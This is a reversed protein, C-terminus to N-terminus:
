RSGHCEFSPSDNVFFTLASHHAPRQESVLDKLIKSGHYSMVTAHGEGAYLKLTATPILDNLHEAMIVPTSKDLLGHHITVPVIIESLDFGWPRSYLRAELAPGAPGQRNGEVFGALLIEQESLDMMLKQDPESLNKSVIKMFKDPNNKVMKTTTKVNWRLFWLPAKKSLSLNMRLTGPLTKKDFDGDTPCVGAVVAAQSVRDPMAHALVLAYPTGASESMVAFTDIGLHDMLEAVDAPWDTLKRDDVYESNGMGPRDPVILRVGSVIALSDVRRGLLSSGGGGYHYVVPSGNPDGYEAFGLIRGSELTFSQNENPQYVIEAFSFGGLLLFAM